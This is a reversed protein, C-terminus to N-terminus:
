HMEDTGFPGTLTTLVATLVLITLALLLEFGISYQLPARTDASLQPVLRFKNLAALALLCAAMLLKSLLLVGYPTDLLTAPSELLQVLLVAGGLLLCGVLAWGLLGFGHLLPKVTALPGAANLRRLPLLAGIWLLVAAVHIVTALRAPAPLVATHGLVAFSAAFLLLTLASAALLWAPLTAPLTSAPTRREKHVLILVALLSLAFGAFKCGIGTGVPTAALIRMLLPDFMGALDAANVSGVQLLFLIVTAFLGEASALAIHHLLAHRQQLFWPPPLAASHQLPATAVARQLLFLVLMGGTAAAMCAYVVIKVLVQALEWSGWDLGM